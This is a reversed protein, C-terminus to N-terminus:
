PVALFPLSVSPFATIVAKFLVVGRQRVLQAATCKKSHLDWLQLAISQETPLGRGTHYAVALMDTEHAAQDLPVARFPVAKSLFVTSACCFSLAKSSVLTVVPGPVALSVIQLGAYSFIRLQRKSTAVTVMKKGVAVAVADEGDPLECRWSSRDWSDFFRFHVVSPSMGRSPAAFVAGVDCLDAMTYRASDQFSVPRRHLTTDEFEIELASHDKREVSTARGVLNWALQRRGDEIPTAGSTFAEQAATEKIGYHLDDDHEAILATDAENAKVRAEISKLVHTFKDASAPGKYQGDEDLVDEEEAGEGGGGGDDGAAAAAAAGDDAAEEMDEAEDEVFSVAKAPSPAAKTPAAAVREAPFADVLSDVTEFPPPMDAPIAETWPGVVTGAANAALVSNRVPDWAISTVPTGETM